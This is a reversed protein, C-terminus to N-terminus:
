IQFRDMIKQRRKQFETKMEKNTREYSSDIESTRNAARNCDQNYKYQDFQTYTVRGCNITKTYSISHPSPTMVAWRDIASIFSRWNKDEIEEADISRTLIWIFHGKLNILGNDAPNARLENLLEETHNNVFDVERQFFKEWLEDHEKHYDRYALCGASIAGCSGGAIAGYLSAALWSGVPGSIAFGIGISIAGLTGCIVTGDLLTNDLKISHRSRLKSLEGDIGSLFNIIVDHEQDLKRIFPHSNKMREEFSKCAWYLAEKYIDLKSM